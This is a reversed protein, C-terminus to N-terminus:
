NLVFINNDRHKLFDFSDDLCHTFILLVSFTNKACNPRPEINKELLM